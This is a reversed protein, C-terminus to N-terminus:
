VAPTGVGDTVLAKLWGTVITVHRREAKLAQSFQEALDSQGAETALETLLEWGANDTLEGMLIANLCQAMTTRPDTIVQVLGMSATGAVDACPTQATPDAGLETVSDSLLHFHALEEARITRLTQLASEGAAM